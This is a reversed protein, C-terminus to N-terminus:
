VPFSRNKKESMNMMGNFVGGEEIIVSNSNIDGEFRAGNQIKLKIKSNITGKAKGLINIFDAELKGNVNGSKGITISNESTINGTVKGEIIVSEESTINGKVKVSKGLFSDSGTTGSSILSDMNENERRNKSFDMKVV